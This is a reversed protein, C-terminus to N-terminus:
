QNISKLSNIIETTDHDTPPPTTDNDVDALFSLFKEETELM